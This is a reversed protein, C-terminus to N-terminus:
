SSSGIKSNKKSSAREKWVSYSHTDLNKASSRISINIEAKAQRSRAVAMAASTSVLRPRNKNEIKRLYATRKIVCVNNASVWRSQNQSGRSCSGFTASTSTAWDVIGFTSTQTALHALKLLIQKNWGRWQLRWKLKKLKLVTSSRRNQYLIYSKRSNEEM